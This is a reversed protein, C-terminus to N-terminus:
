SRSNHSSPRLSSAASAAQQVHACCQARGCAEAMIQGELRGALGAGLCFPLFCCGGPSGAAVGGRAQAGVRAGAPVAPQLGRLPPRDARGGARAGPQRPQVRRQRAAPLLLQPAAGPGRGAAPPRGGFAATGRTLRGPAGGPPAAPPAPRRGPPPAPSPVPLCQLLPTPSAARRHCTSPDRRRAPPRHRRCRRRQQLRGLSRLLCAAARDQAARRGCPLLPERSPPLAGGVPLPAGSAGAWRRRPQRTGMPWPRAM